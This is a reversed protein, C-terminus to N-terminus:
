RHRRLSLQRRAAHEEKEVSIRGDASNRREESLRRAHRAAAEGHPAPGGRSAERHCRHSCHAERAAGGSRKMDEHCILCLKDRHAPSTAGDDRLLLRREFSETLEPITSIRNEPVPPKSHSSDVSDSRRVRQHNRADTRDERPKAHSPGPAMAAAHLHNLRMADLQSQPCLCPRSVDDPRPRQESPCDSDWKFSWSTSLYLGSTLTDFYVRLCVPPYLSLCSYLSVSHCSSLFVHICLSMFVSLSISLCVFM